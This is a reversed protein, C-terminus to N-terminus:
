VRYLNFPVILFLFIFLFSGLTIGPEKKFLFPLRIGLWQWLHPKRM